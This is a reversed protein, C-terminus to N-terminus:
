GVTTKGTVQRMVTIKPTINNIDPDLLAALHTPRRQKMKLSSLPSVSYLNM